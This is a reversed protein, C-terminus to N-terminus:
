RRKAPPASPSPTARTSGLDASTPPTATTTGTQAAAQAQVSSWALARNAENLGLMNNRQADDLRFWIRQQEPTLTWFYTQANQTWADYATRQEAPWRSYATQHEPNMAARAAPQAVASSSGIAFALAAASALFKTLM